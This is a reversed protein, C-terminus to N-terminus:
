GIVKLIIGPCFFLHQFTETKIPHCIWLSKFICPIKLNYWIRPLTTVFSNKCLKEHYFFALIHFKLLSKHFSCLTGWLCYTLWRFFAFPNELSLSKTLVLKTLIKRLYNLLLVLWWTFVLWCKLWGLCGHWCGQCCCRQSWKQGTMPVRVGSFVKRM